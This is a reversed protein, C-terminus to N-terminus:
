PHPESRTGPFTSRHQLTGARHTVRVPIDGSTVHPQHSRSLAQTQPVSTGQSGASATTSGLRKWSAAAALVPQQGSGERELGLGPSSTAGRAAAAAAAEQRGGTERPADCVVWLAVFGLAPASAVSCLPVLFRSVGARWSAAQPRPGPGRAM